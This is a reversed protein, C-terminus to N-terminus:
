SRAALGLRANEEEFLERTREGNFPREALSEADWQSREAAFFDGGYIHIAGAFRTLPNTVSHIVDASMAAVDGAFLASAGAAKLGEDTRRWFINDERGTYLGIMAWMEHNHPALSMRPAWKAALITLDAARYLVDLGARDPEGLEALVSAHDSVARALVQKVAAQPRDERAAALCEEVFREREFKM